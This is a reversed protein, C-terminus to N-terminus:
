VAVSFSTLFGSVTVIPFPLETEAFYERGTVGYYDYCGFTLISNLNQYRTFFQYEEKM